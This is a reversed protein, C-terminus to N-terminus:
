PLRNVVAVLGTHEPAWASYHPARYIFLNLFFFCTVKLYKWFHLQSPSVTLKTQIIHTKVNLNSVGFM